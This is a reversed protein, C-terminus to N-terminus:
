TCVSALSLARVVLGLVRRVAQLMLRLGGGLVRRRLALECWVMMARHRM